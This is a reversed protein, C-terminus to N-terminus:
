GCQRRQVQNNLYQLITKQPSHPALGTGDLKAALVGSYFLSLVPNLHSVTPADTFELLPGFAKRVSKLLSIVQCRSFFVQRKKDRGLVYLIAKEQEVRDHATKLGKSMKSGNPFAELM